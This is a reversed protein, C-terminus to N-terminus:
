ASPTSVSSVAQQGSRVGECLRRVDEVLARESFPKQWLHVDAFRAPIREEGYASAFVFPVSQRKLEDAVPYGEAGQLNIDVVAVEFGDRAVQRLAQDLNGLPGVVKAGKTELLATLERAIFYEDEIVLIRYGSLPQTSHTQAM